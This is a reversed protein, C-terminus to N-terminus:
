KNDNGDNTTQMIRKMHTGERTTKRKQDRVNGEKTRKVYQTCKISQPEDHRM